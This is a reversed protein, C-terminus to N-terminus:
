GREKRKAQEWRVSPRYEILPDRDACFVCLVVPGDHRYVIEQEPALRGGCACCRCARKSLTLFYRSRMVEGHARRAGAVAAKARRKQERSRFSLLCSRRDGPAATRARVVAVVPTHVVVEQPRDRYEPESVSWMSPDEAM